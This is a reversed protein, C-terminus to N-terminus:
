RPSSSLPEDGLRRALFALLQYGGVGPSVFPWLDRRSTGANSARLARQLAGPGGDEILMTAMGLSQGYLLAVEGSEMTEAGEDDRLPEALSEFPIWLPTRIMTRWTAARTGPDGEFYAALGEDLWYPVCPATAHLQAHLVEHRVFRENTDGTVHVAGDYMARAWTIGDKAEVMTERDPWTVVLLDERPKSDLLLAAEVLAADVRTALARAEPKELWDTDYAVRVAGATEVQLGDPGELSEDPLPEECADILLHGRLRRGRALGGDGVPAGAGAGAASRRRQGRLEGGPVADSARLPDGEAFTEAGPSSVAERPASASWPSALFALLLLLLLVVAVAALGGLWWRRRRRAM